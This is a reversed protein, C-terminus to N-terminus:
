PIGWSDSNPAAPILLRERPPTALPLLRAVMPCVNPDRQEFSPLGAGHLRVIRPATSSLIPADRRAMLDVGFM